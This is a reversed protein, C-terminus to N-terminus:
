PLPSSCPGGNPSGSASSFEALVLASQEKLDGVVASPKVDAGGGGAAMAKEAHALPGLGEAAVEVHCGGRSPARDQREGNRRPFPRGRVLDLM